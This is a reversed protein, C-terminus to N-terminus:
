PASEVSARTDGIALDKYSVTALSSGGQPRYIGFKLYSSVSNYANTGTFRHVLQGDLYCDASGNTALSWNVRWMIRHWAGRTFAFKASHNRGRVSLGYVFDVTDTYHRMALLPPHNTWEADPTPKSDHVQGMIEYGNGDEYDFPILISWAYWVETDIDAVDKILMEARNKQAVVDEPMVTVLAGRPTIQVRSPQALEYKIEAPLPEVCLSHHFAHVSLFLM